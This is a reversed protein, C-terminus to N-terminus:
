PHLFDNQLLIQVSGSRDITSTLTQEYTRCRRKQGDAFTGIKSHRV